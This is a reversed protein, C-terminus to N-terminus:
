ATSQAREAPVARAARQRVAPTGERLHDDCAQNGRQVSDRVLRVLRERRQPGGIREVDGRVGHASQKTRNSADHDHRTFARLRRGRVTRHRLHFDVAGNDHPDRAEPFSHEGVLPGCVFLQRRRSLHFTEDNRRAAGDHARQDPEKPALADVDAGDGVGLPRELLRQEVRGVDHEDVVADRRGPPDIQDHPQLGVDARVEYRCDQVRQVIEPPLPHPRQGGAGVGDERRVRVDLLPPGADPRQQARPRQVPADIPKLAGLAALDDVAPLPQRVEQVVELPLNAASAAM